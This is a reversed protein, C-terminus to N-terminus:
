SESFPCNHGHWSMILQLLGLRNAILLDFDSEVLSGM